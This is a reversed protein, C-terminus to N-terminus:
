VIKRVTWLTTTDQDTLMDVFSTVSAQAQELISPLEGMVNARTAMFLVLGMVLADEAQVPLSLESTLATLKAPVPVYRILMDEINTDEWRISPFPFLEQGILAAAPFEAEEARYDVFEVPAMTGTSYRLLASIVLYHDPLVVGGQTDEAALIDAIALTYNEALAEENLKVVQEYLQRQLRSLVGLLMKDSHDNNLFAPHFDRAQEIIDKAVLPM